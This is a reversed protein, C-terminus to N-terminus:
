GNDLVGTYGSLMWHFVTIWEDIDNYVDNMIMWIRWYRRWYDEYIMWDVYGNIYYIYLIDIENDSRNYYWELWYIM